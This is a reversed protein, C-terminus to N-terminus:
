NNKEAAKLIKSNALAEKITKGEIIKINYAAAYKRANDTMGPIVFILSDWEIDNIKGYIRTIEEIDIPKSSKLVQIVTNGNDKQHASTAVSPYPMVWGVKGLILIDFLHKTGSKGSVSAPTVIAYGLSKFFGICADLPKIEEMEHIPLENNVTYKYLLVEPEEDLEATARCDSCKSVLLPKSNRAKCSLCTYAPPLIRYDVGILHLKVNCKPCVLDENRTEFSTQKEITGCSFHEILGEKRLKMSMCEPCLKKIKINASGCALCVILKDTLEAKLFGRRVLSDLVKRSRKTEWDLQPAGDFLYGEPATSNVSSTIQTVKGYLFLEMLRQEDKRLEQEEAFGTASQGRFAFLDDKLNVPSVNAVNQQVILRPKEIANQFQTSNKRKGFFIDVRVTAAFGLTLAGEFIIILIIASIFTANDSVFNLYSFSSDVVSSFNNFLYISTLSGTFFWAGLFLMIATTLAFIVLLIAKRKLSKGPALEMIVGLILGIALMSLPAVAFLLNVMETM